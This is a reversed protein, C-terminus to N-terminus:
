NEEELEDKPTLSEEEEKSSSPVAITEEGDEDWEIIPSRGIGEETEEMELETTLPSARLYPYLGVAAIKSPFSVVGEQSPHQYTERIMVVLSREDVAIVVADYTNGRRILRSLRSALRPEIEGLYRKQLSEVAIGNGAIRLKVADGPAMRLHARGPSLNALSVRTTKGGEEIFLQPPVKSGHKPLATEGELHALRKLNKRAIVNARSIALAQRFAEGAEKYRGLESLAKGLRNCAEMDKPFEELIASNVAVAEEWRSELALAIAGRAKERKIHAKDEAYPIM